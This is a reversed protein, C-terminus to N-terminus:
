ATHESLSCHCRVQAMDDWYKDDSFPDSDHWFRLKGIVITRGTERVVIDSVGAVVAQVDTTIFCPSLSPISKVEIYERSFSRTCGKDCEVYLVLENAKKTIAHPFRVLETGQAQGVLQLESFTDLETASEDHLTEDGIEAPSSTVAHM